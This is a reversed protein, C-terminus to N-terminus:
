ITSNRWFDHCQFGQITAMMFWLGIWLLFEGNTLVRVVEVIIKNTQTIFVEKVFAKPIIFEFIQLFTPIVNVGGAISPLIDERSNKYQEMRSHCLGNQGFESNFIIQVASEPVPINEAAPLNDGDIFIEGEVQVEIVDGDQLIGTREIKRVM